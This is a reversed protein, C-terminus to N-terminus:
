DINRIVLSTALAGLSISTHPTPKALLEHDLVNQTTAEFHAALLACARNTDKALVAELLARHEGQIDRVASEPYHMSLMRYRATQDRLTKAFRLLWQLNCNSILARHFADHADEWDPRLLREPGVVEALRDLRHHAAVIRTEWDLDANAISLRLAECEIYLRTKTIDGIEEASICGVSFGKQETSTIFGSAALRSLAERLPIVGAGYSAALDKLRLKSGPALRGSIIDERVRSELQSAMTRKDASTVDISPEFRKM